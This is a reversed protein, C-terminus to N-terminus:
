LFIRQCIGECSPRVVDTLYQMEKGSLCGILVKTTIWLCFIPMKKLMLCCCTPIEVQSLHDVLNNIIFHNLFIEDM